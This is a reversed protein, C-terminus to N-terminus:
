SNADSNLEKSGNDQNLSSLFVVATSILESINGRKKPLANKTLKMIGTDIEKNIINLHGFIKM